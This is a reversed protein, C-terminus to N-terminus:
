GAKWGTAQANGTLTSGFNSGIVNEINILVDGSAHGLSVQGTALNLDVTTAVTDNKYDATDIGLGGDITDAGAGGSILDNGDGASVTQNGDDFFLVDNFATTIFREISEFADTGITSGNASGANADATITVAGLEAAYDLTDTGSGAYFNNNQGDGTFTDNGSGTRVGEIGTLQDGAIESGPAGAQTALRLNVTYNENAVYNAVDFGSGGTLIDAGAKAFLETPGDFLGWTVFVGVALFAVLKVVSEFAVAAVMGEHREASDLHRAGFVITFGALPSSMWNKDIGSTM